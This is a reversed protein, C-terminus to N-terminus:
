PSAPEKDGASPQIKKRSARIQMQMLADRARDPVVKALIAAVKADTGVLYRTKPKTATLAHAVSEAVAYPSIGARDQAMAWDVMADAAEGYLTEGDEPLQKRLEIGHAASKQWIPTAINGPEILVVEIEWPRLEVRMSDTFAELTHKTGSYPGVFPGSVRGAMSGMFIVRGKARRILPMFAQTVAIQGIVNVEFQRRLEDIPVFELPAGVAIGANNVLGALGASGVENRVLESAARIQGEDVVDLTLPALRDSAQAKLRDGDEDRRVGAFVSFGLRDLHLACAEGIGTSAGTIVVTKMEDM